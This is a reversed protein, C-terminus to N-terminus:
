MRRERAEERKEEEEYPMLVGEPSICTMSYLQDSLDTPTDSDEPSSHPRVQPFM